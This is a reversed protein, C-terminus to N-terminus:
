AHRTEGPASLIRALLRWRCAAMGSALIALAVRALQLFQDRRAQDATAFRSALNDLHAFFGEASFGGLMMFLLVLSGATALLTVLLWGALRLSVLCVDALRLRAGLDHRPVAIM